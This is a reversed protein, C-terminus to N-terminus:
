LRGYPNLWERSNGSVGSERFMGFTCQSRHRRFYVYMECTVPCFVFDLRLLYMLLFRFPISLLSSPPMATM